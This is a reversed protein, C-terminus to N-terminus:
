LSPVRSEVPSPANSSPRMELPTGGANAFGVARPWSSVGRSLGRAVAGLHPPPLRELSALLDFPPPASLDSAHAEREARWAGPLRGM